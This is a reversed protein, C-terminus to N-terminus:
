ISGLAFPPALNGNEGYAAVQRRRRRRSGSVQEEYACRLAIRGRPNIDNIEEEM